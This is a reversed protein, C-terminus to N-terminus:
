MKLVTLALSPKAAFDRLASAIKNVNLLRLISMAFNRLCAMVQPGNKKRVNSRDEDYTVDRVYHIKNAISWHGRNYQLIEEPSADKVDLDTVGYIIEETTKSRKVDTIIRQIAFVQGVHPFNVYDNIATSCWIRRVEIRGHEKGVTEHQPPFVRSISLLM